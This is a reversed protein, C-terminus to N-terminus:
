PTVSRLYDWRAGLYARVYAVEGDYDRLDGTWGWYSQLQAAWRAYDRRAEPDIAAEEADFRDLLSQRAWPGDLAASMRGNMEAGLTADGLARAFFRNNDTYDEADDAPVDISQWDQGLSDNFDWPTYHWVGAADLPDHYLYSNKEASDGGDVFRVFVWWDMFDDRSVHADLTTTFTTDDSTAVFTVLDDLDSWDAPDGSKKEYGSHLSSKRRGGYRLDLNASHDVAKYLNADERGGNDEWWEGDIHDTILQLGEYVGNLYLAIMATQFRPHTDSLDSWLDYCLKQRLYSTDDFTSTINLNRRSKWGPADFKDDKDFALVFSHKPYYASSAGRYQLGITFRHGLWVVSSAVDTDYNTDPPVELHMVPVGYEYTYTMPDVAVNAPDAWADAVWVTGTVEASADARVADFVIDYQGGQDLGPTWTLAGDAWVAGDPLTRPTLVADPAEACGVQWRLAEAETGFVAAVEAGAPSGQPSAALTTLTCTLVALSPVTELPSSDDAQAPGTDVPDAIPISTSHCAALALFAIMPRM